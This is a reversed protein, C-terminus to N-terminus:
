YLHESFLTNEQSTNVERRIQENRYAIVYAEQRTLYNGFQDIFGQDDGSRHYFNDPDKMMEIQNLMNKDYHRASTVIRGDAGRIAACVIRPTPENKICLKCTKPIKWHECIYGNDINQEAQESMNLILGPNHQWNGNLDFKGWVPNYTEM